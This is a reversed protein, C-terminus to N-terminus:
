IIKRLQNIDVSKGGIMWKGQTFELKTMKMRLGFIYAHQSVLNHFADAGRNLLTNLFLNNKEAFEAAYSALCKQDNFDIEQKYLDNIIRIGIHIVECCLKNASAEYCAELNDFKVKIQKGDIKVQCSFGLGDKNKFWRTLTNIEKETM